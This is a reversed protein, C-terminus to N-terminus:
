IFSVLKIIIILLKAYNYLEKGKDKRQMEPILYCLNVYSIDSNEFELITLELQGICQDDKLVIVFGKPFERTKEGVM